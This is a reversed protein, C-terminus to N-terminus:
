MPFHSAHRQFLKKKKIRTAIQDSLCPITSTRCLQMTIYITIVLLVYTLFDRNLSMKNMAVPKDILYKILRIVLKLM